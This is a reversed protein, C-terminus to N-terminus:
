EISIKRDLLFKRLFSDFEVLFEDFLSTECLERQMRQPQKIHGEQAEQGEQKEAQIHKLQSLKPEDIDYSESEDFQIRDTSEKESSSIVSSQMKIPKDDFDFRHMCNFCTNMDSFLQMKCVPCVKIKLEEKVPSQADAKANHKLAVADHELGVANQEDSTINQAESTDIGM